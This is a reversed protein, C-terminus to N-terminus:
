GEILDSGELSVTEGPKLSGKIIKNAIAQEIRDQIARNMPRAGFKPDTGFRMLYRVLADTIALDIGREALRKALKELQLRAIRELHENGLPHFIIVGDFRNLLEPKMVHSQIISDIILDKAHSLNEGRKVADWILDSGANSTAIILLNRANVKKGAMDSFVGEDLIQLFLNMVESTTKEFEDLLLVGYPHDRLMTSLVGAQGGFEGILKALADTGSYESMDLRLMPADGGFFVEGLAKTTETKGVGTPGLFLFSAMPRSPNNIGSRARRVANAIADVAEDQGIIRQHLVKELNLLKGKEAGTIEGVPIGTKGRVLRMVDEKRVVERGHAVLRPAVEHLLDIAKQPMVGETFYRDASEAIAFIAPYTFFVRSRREIPIIENELIRVTNMEDVEPLPIKEFREMLAVNREVKGFFRDHDILGVFHLDPATLYREMLSVPDIGMSDCHELLAAFEPLVVIINGARYAEDMLKIFLGEFDPKSKGASVLREVDLVLMRKHRLGHYATGNEILAHLRAVISLAGERDDGVLLANAMRDRLLAQELAELESTGYVEHVDYERYLPVLVETAYQDLYYTQGYSWGQGIGPIRALRDRSWWRHAVRRSVEREVVWDVIAIFDKRQVGHAFLFRAFERDADYLVGAYDSVNAAALDPLVLMSADVFSTRKGIYAAIDRAAIGTRHLVTRGIRSRMFSMLPDRKAARYLLHALEFPMSVDAGDVGRYYFWLFFAQLASFTMWVALSLTAFGAAASAFPSGAADLVISLLYLGIAGYGSWLRVRTHARHPLLREMLLAPYYDKLAKARLEQFTM